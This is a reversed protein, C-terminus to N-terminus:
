KYGFLDKGMLVVKCNEITFKSLIDKIDEVNIEEM